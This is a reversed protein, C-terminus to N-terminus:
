NSKEQLTQMAQAYRKGFERLSATDFHVKDGKDKLGSSSVVASNPLQKPVSNIQENVVKWYSPEGSRTTESLFEGLEGAVFPVAPVELEARLDHVMQTLRDAYTKALEQDRSDGEGQHWLIGKLTGDKMALKAREIAQQYLDGEKQWRVLPTGGVACPILGITVEPDAAALTEAFSYGLGVGAISKDFHLPEVAPAWQNNKSFKLVREPPAQPEDSLAGRGSMNSQGILLYLHFKEAAPLDASEASSGAHLIGAFMVIAILNIARM